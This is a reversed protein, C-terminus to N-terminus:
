SCTLARAVATKWENYLKERKDDVMQPAFVRDARWTAAIQELNEWIGVELGALYTAGLASVERIDPRSVETNLLDAQFQMLFENAAAGGDARLSILPIGSGAKILEFVDRVQYAISELGARILHERGAGRTLGTILAKAEMDWYPAGLGVFAPVLYVGANDTLTAAIEASKAVDDIIGLGDRLWQMTAGTVNIIGEIAYGVERKVGWALTAVLGTAPTIPNEGAYMMLSTGTGYTAKAMGPKFCTEGFLAGQSDGIVGTIPIGAPLNGLRVSYGFEGSSPLVKALMSKPIALAELMEDDWCLDYINYLLTRSANSYDTAFVKGGTLNWLLWSDITGFCVEGKQAKEKLMPINDLLWKLKTGSFYPDIRLGTKRRALDELGANMLDKCIEVSRRCQWVVAPALPAGTRREWVAATERQNSIAIAKINGEDNNHSVVENILDVVSNWIEKLDHEVWGPQPYYQTIERYAQALIQSGRNFLLVKTGTTGQDIALILDRSM